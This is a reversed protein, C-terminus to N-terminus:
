AVREWVPSAVDEAQGDDIVVVRLRQQQFRHALGDRVTADLLVDGDRRV